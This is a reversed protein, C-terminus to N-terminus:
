WVGACSWSNLSAILSKGWFRKIREEDVAFGDSVKIVESSM